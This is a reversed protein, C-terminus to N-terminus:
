QIFAMINYSIKHFYNSHFYNSSMNIACFQWYQWYHHLVYRTDGFFYELKIRLLKLALSAILSLYSENFVLFALKSKSINSTLKRENNVSISVNSNICTKSQNKFIGLFLYYM